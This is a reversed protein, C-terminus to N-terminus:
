NSKLINTIARQFTMYKNLYLKHAMFNMGKFTHLDTIKTYDCLEAVMIVAQNLVDTGSWFLVGCGNVIM